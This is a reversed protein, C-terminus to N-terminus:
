CGSIAAPFARRRVEKLYPAAAAPGEIENATEAAIILVEAYRMYIKNVGDDNTSTVYRTMWEYRYKGFYWTDLTGIEQKAINNVAAGYKYPVCTVDRRTDTQDYDYFVFPM